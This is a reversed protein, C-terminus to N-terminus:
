QVLAFPRELANSHDSVAKATPRTSSAAFLFAALVVIDLRGTQSSVWM